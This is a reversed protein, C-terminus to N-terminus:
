NVKPRRPSNNQTQHLGHQSRKTKRHVRSLFSHPEVGVYKSGTYNYLINCCFCTVDLNKVWNSLPVVCNWGLKKCVAYTPIRLLTGMGEATM